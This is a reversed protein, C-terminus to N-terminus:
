TMVIRQYLKFKERTSDTSGDDIVLMLPEIDLNPIEHRVTSVTEEIIKAENYCPIIVTLKEADQKKAYVETRSYYIKWDTHMITSACLDVEKVM